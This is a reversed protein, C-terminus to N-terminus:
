PELLGRSAAWFVLAAHTGHLIEGAEVLSPLSAAPVVRLGIDESADLDPEGVRHAGQAVYLHGYNTHRGPEVALKGLREWRPAEYGTEERLERQVAADPTEGDDIVGAPFELSIRAVSHRYQEVLVAQGAETLPLVCAWDPYELVHFEDIEHGSPLRVRDERLRLWRRDLLVRSALTTWPAPRPM